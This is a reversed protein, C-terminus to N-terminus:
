LWKVFWDMATREASAAFARGTDPQLLLTFKGAARARRYAGAAAKACEQAGALPTLADSDGNVVLLPRPAIFPLMVPGDFGAYIGPV